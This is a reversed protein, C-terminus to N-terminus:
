LWTSISAEGRFSPLNRFAALLTEQLVERAADENGCMRLGFRYISPEYRGLLEEVASRDGERIGDLLESDTRAVGPFITMKAVTRWRGSDKERPGARVSM